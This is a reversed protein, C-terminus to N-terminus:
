IVRISVRVLSEFIPLHFAHAHAFNFFLCTALLYVPVLVISSWWSLLPNPEERKETEAGDKQPAYNQM